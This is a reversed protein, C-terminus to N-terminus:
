QYRDLLGYPRPSAPVGPNIFKSEGDRIGGSSPRSAQTLEGAVVVVRVVVVDVCIARGGGCVLVVVVLSSRVPGVDAELDVASVVCRIGDTPGVHVVRGAVSCPRKCGLTKRPILTGGQM